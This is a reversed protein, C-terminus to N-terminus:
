AAQQQRRRRNRLVVGGLVLAAALPLGIALPAEPTGDGPSDGVDAGNGVTVQFPASFLHPNTFASTGSPDSEFIGIVCDNPQLGCSEAPNMTPDGLTNEDPLTYIPFGSKTFAGSPTKSVTKLTAAECDTPGSPLVGNNDACEELYYLGTGGAITSNAVTSVTIPQGSSYPTGATVSAGTTLTTNGDSSTLSAAGAVGSGIGIAFVAACVTAAGSVAVTKFVHRISM